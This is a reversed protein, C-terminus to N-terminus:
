QKPQKGTMKLNGFNQKQEARGGASPNCDLLHSVIVESCTQNLLWLKPMHPCEANPTVLCIYATSDESYIVFTEMQTFTTAYTEVRM